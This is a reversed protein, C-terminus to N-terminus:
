ITVTKCCCVFNCCLSHWSLDRCWERMFSRERVWERIFVWWKRRTRSTQSWAHGSIVLGQSSHHVLAPSVSSNLSFDYIGLLIYPLFLLGLIEETNPLWTSTPWGFLRVDNFNLEVNLNQFGNGCNRFHPFYNKIRTCREWKGRFFTCSQFKSNEFCLSSEEESKRVM